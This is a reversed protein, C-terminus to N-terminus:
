NLVDEKKDEDQKKLDRDRAESFSFKRYEKFIDPICNRVIGCLEAYNRMIGYLETYNLIM